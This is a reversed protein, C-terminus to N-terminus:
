ALVRQLGGGVRVVDREGHLLRTQLGAGLRRRRESPEAGPRELQKGEWLTVGFLVLFLAIQLGLFISVGM